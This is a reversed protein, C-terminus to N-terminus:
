DELLEGTVTNKESVVTKRLESVGEYDNDAATTYPRMRHSRQGSRTDGLNANDIKVLDGKRRQISMGNCSKSIYASRFHM